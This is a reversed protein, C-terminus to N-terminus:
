FILRVDVFLSWSGMVKELLSWRRRYKEVFVRFGVVFASNFVSEVFDSSYIPWVSKRYRYRCIDVFYAAYASQKRSQERDQQTRNGIWEKLYEGAITGPIVVFLYKLFNFHYLWPVPSFNVVAQQWSHETSSGLFLALLFPLIGIRLWPNHRTFLYVISGWFAMNALVLIIIDSCALDFSRGDNYDVSFLLVVGVAYGLVEILIKVWAPLQMPIRM